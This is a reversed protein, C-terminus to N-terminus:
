TSSDPWANPNSPLPIPEPTGTSTSCFDSAQGLRMVGPMHPMRSYMPTPHLLPAAGHRSHRDAAVYGAAFTALLGVIGLSVAATRPVKWRPPLRRSGQELFDDSASPRGTGPLPEPKRASPEDEGPVCDDPRRWKGLDRSSM